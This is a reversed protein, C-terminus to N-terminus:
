HRKESSFPLRNRQPGAMRFESLADCPIPFGVHRFPSGEVRAAGTLRRNRMLFDGTGSGMAAQLWPWAIRGTFLARRLIPRM